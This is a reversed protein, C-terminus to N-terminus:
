AIDLTEQFNFEDQIHRHYYSWTCPVSSAPISDTCVLREYWFLYFSCTVNCPEISEYIYPIYVYCIQTKKLVPLIYCINHEYKYMCIYRGVTYAISVGRRLYSSCLLRCSNVIFHFVYCLAMFSAPIFFAATNGSTWIFIVKSLYPPFMPMSINAIGLM